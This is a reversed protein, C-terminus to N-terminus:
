RHGVGAICTNSTDNVGTFSANSTDAVDPIKIPKNTVLRYGRCHHPMVDGTDVVSTLFSDSNDNVGIFFM